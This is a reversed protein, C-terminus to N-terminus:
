LFECSLLKAAELYNSVIDKCPSWHRAQLVYDIGVKLMTVRSALVVEM